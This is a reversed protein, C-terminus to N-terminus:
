QREGDVAVQATRITYSCSNVPIAGYGEPQGVPPSESEIPEGGVRGGGTVPRTPTARGADDKAIRNIEEEALALAGTGYTRGQEATRYVIELVPHHIFENGVDIRPLHRHHTPSM